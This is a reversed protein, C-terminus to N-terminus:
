PRQVSMTPWNRGTVDSYRENHELMCKVSVGSLTIRDGIRNGVSNEMDFPGIGTKLINLSVNILSNHGIKTGDAIEIVVSKTEITRTLTNVRQSLAVLSARKKMPNRGVSKRKFTKKSTRKLKFNM